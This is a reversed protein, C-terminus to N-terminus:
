WYPLGWSTRTDDADGARERHLAQRRMARKADVIIVFKDVMGVLGLGAVVPLVVERGHDQLVQVRGADLTEPCERMNPQKRRRGTDARVAGRDWSLPWAEATRRGARARDGTGAPQAPIVVCAVQVVADGDVAVRTSRLDLSPPLIFSYAFRSSHIENTPM